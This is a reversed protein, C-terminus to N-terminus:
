ARKSNASLDQASSFQGTASGAIEGRRANLKGQDRIVRYIHGRYARDYIADFLIANSDAFEAIVSQPTERSIKRAEEDRAIQVPLAYNETAGETYSVELLLHRPGGDGDSVSPEDVIRLERITLAKSGFWRCGVIYEPLIENEFERRAAGNFLAAFEAASGLKPTRGRRRVRPAAAKQLVFWYHGHPGLTLPYRSRRIVPFRNRSFVERPVFGAFRPFISRM